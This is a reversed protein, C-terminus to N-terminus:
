SNYTHVLFKTCGFIFEDRLGALDQFVREISSKYNEAHAESM